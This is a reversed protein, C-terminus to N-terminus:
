SGGVTEGLSAGSEIVCQQADCGAVKVERMEGNALRLAAKGGNNARENGFLLASRPAVLGSKKPGDLEIKVSMGPRMREPDKNPISLSVAFNRRLSQRQRTRAVPALEKVECPLPEQPYADLTCKGKQGIAVRGDDVDSLEAKVEMPQSFDPLTVIVFGPQVTDGVQFRRGEWPHTGVSIAGDKPAKLVLESIAKEATEVARRTKELEIQKVKAELASAQKETTVDKEVKTLALEARTKELQRDQVTRQPLLDAPVSALLKAKEVAVQAQQLEHQKVSAAMGSVDRYTRAASAAEIVAIQKQVLGTTFASNDFELVREGAKVQAGDEAMWRITLEWVDTKPVTLDTASGARLEGTLLVREKIEGQAITAARQELTATYTSRSEGGGCAVLALIWARRTM